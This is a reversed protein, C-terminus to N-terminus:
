CCDFIIHISYRDSGVGYCGFKIETICGCPIAHLIDDDGVDSALLDQDIGNVAPWTFIFVANYQRSMKCFANIDQLYAGTVRHLKHLFSSFPILLVYIYILFPSSINCGDENRIKKHYIERRPRPQGDLRLHHLLKIVVPKRYFAQLVFSCVSDLKISLGPSLM